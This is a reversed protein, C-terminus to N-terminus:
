EGRAVVATLGEGPAGQPQVLVLEVGGGDGAGDAVEGEGGGGAAGAVHRVKVGGVRLELTGQAGFCECASVAQVFVLAPVFCAWRFDQLTVVAAFRESFFCTEFCMYLCGM